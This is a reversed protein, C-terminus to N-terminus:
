GKISAFIGYRDFIQIVQRIRDKGPASMLEKCDFSRGLRAYKGAMIDHYPLLEVPFSPSCPLAALFKATRIINEDDANVGLILPIRVLVRAGSRALRRLNELILKNGVGTWEKHRNPDALKLDYLFLDTKEAVALLTDPEAFGTTDVTRHISIAGFAKLAQKLFKAQALPEGGSFTVGGGSQDFFLRDKEVEKVIQEVSVQRGSIEVAMAPCIHACEGCVKCKEPDAAIGEPTLACAQEPCAKICLGCGMCKEPNYVRERQLSMGEPNHCWACSLPCGKMFVTVRIGPGDNIAYRKIDYILGTNM